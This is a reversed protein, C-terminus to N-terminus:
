RKRKFPNCLKKWVDLGIKMYAQSYLHSSSGLGVNAVSTDLSLAGVHSLHPHQIQCNERGHGRVERAQGRYWRIGWTSEASTAQSFYCMITVQTICIRIINTKDEIFACILMWTHMTYNDMYQTFSQLKNYHHYTNNCHVKSQTPPTSAPHPRQQPVNLHRRSRKIAIHTPLLFHFWQWATDAIRHGLNSQYWSSTFSVNWFISLFLSAVWIDPRGINADNIVHKSRDYSFRSINSSAM